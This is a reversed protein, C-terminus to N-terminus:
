SMLAIEREPSIAKIDLLHWFMLFIKEEFVVSCFEETSCVFVGETPQEVPPAM